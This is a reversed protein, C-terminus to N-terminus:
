PKYNLMQDTFTLHMWSLLLVCCHTHVVSTIAYKHLYKVHTRQNNYLFQLPPSWYPETSIETKSQAYKSLSHNKSHCCTCYQWLSILLLMPHLTAVAKKSIAITVILSWICDDKYLINITYSSKTYNRIISQPSYIM